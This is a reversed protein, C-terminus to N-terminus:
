PKVPTEIWQGKERTVVIFRAWRYLRAATQVKVRADDRMFGKVEYFYYAGEHIVEFDPTYRCDDGLKITIEQIGIWACGRSRLVALWAAETKNLKAEDTSPEIEFSPPEPLPQPHSPPLPAPPAHLGGDILIAALTRRKKAPPTAPATPAADNLRLTDTSARPLFRKFEEPTM